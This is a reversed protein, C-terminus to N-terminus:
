CGCTGAWSTLARGGPYNSGRGACSGSYKNLDYGPGLPPLLSSVGYRVCPVNADTGTSWEGGEGTLALLLPVSFLQTLASSSFFASPFHLLSTNGGLLSSPGRSKAWGAVPCHDTRGWSTQFFISPPPPGSSGLLPLDYQGFTGRFRSLFSASNPFHQGHGAPEQSGGMGRVLAQVKSQATDPSASPCRLLRPFPKVYCSIWSIRSHSM